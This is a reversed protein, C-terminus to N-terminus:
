CSGLWGHVRGSHLRCWRASAEAAGPDAQTPRRREPSPKTNSTEPSQVQAPHTCPLSEALTRDGAWELSQFFTHKDRPFVSEGCSGAM